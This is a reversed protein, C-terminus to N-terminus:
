VQAAVKKKLYSRLQGRSASHAGNWIRQKESFRSAGPVKLVRSIGRSNKLSSSLVALKSLFLLPIEFNKFTIYLLSVAM